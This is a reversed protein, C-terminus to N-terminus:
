ALSYSWDRDTDKNSGPTVPTGYPNPAGGPGNDDGEREERAVAATGDPNLVGFTHSRLSFQSSSLVVVLKQATGFIVRGAPQGNLMFRTQSAFHTGTLTVLVTGTPQVQVAVHTVTPVADGLVGLQRTFQLRLLWDLPPLLQRLTQEEQALVQTLDGLAAARQSGAPMEAVATRCADTRAAVTQLALTLAQDSRRGNAVTQLDSLASQLLALETQVKTEPDHAFILTFQNQAQKLGYLPDGPLSYVSFAFLSAFSLVLAAATGLLVIWPRRKAPRSAGTSRRSGAILIVRRGSATQTSRQRLSSSRLRARLVQEVRLAVEAPVEMGELARVREAAQVCAAIEEEEVQVRRGGESPLDLVHDLIEERKM